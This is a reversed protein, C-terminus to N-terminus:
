YSVNLLFLGQSSVTIGALQRDKGELVKIMDEPPRIGKGTEILTGIIIRVMNYLFGDGTIAIRIEESSKNHLPNIKVIQIGEITRVTTKGDKRDTSFAKFDRTGLLYESAKKMATVNLPEPVHLTYKRTFVSQAEGTAIRYEYTKLKACFRSHFEQDAENLLLVRIDEPLRKNLEKLMDDVSLGIDCYFNAVQGLAHVGADTRGSGIVKIDQRLYNSLCEEVVSQIPRKGTIVGLRQWGAYGSGDYQLVMKINRKNNSNGTKNNM